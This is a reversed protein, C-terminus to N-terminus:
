KMNNSIFSNIVDIFYKVGNLNCDKETTGIRLLLDKGGSSEIFYLIYNYPINEPNSDYQYYIEASKLEGINYVKEKTSLVAKKILKLSNLELTLFTCYYNKCGVITTIICSFLCSVIGSMVQIKTLNSFILLLGPIIFSSIYLLIILIKYSYNNQITYSNSDTKIIRQRSYKVNNENDGNITQNTQDIYFCDNSPIYPNLNIIYNPPPYYLQKERSKPDIM